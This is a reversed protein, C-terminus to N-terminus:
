QRRYVIESGRGGPGNGFHVTLMAVAAVCSFVTIPTAHELFNEFCTSVLMAVAYATCALVVTQGAVPPGARLYGVTTRFFSGFMAAIAAFGIVGQTMLLWLMSNHINHGEALLSGGTSTGTYFELYTGLGSGLLPREGWKALAARYSDFRWSVNIDEAARSVNAKMMLEQGVTSRGETVQVEWMLFVAVAVFAAGLAAIGVLATKKRGPFMWFLFAMGGIVGLWGARYNALVIAVLGLAAVAAWALRRARPNFVLQALAFYVSLSIFIVEYQSLVHAADGARRYYFQGTAAQVFAKAILCLSGVLLVRWLARLGREDDVLLQAVFFNMFYFYARRFDGLVEDFPNRSLLLGNAVGWMGLLFFAAVFRNFRIARLNWHGLSARWLIVMANFAFVVDQIYLKMFGLPLSVTEFLEHFVMAGFVFAPFVRRPRLTAVAVVSLVGAALAALLAGNDALQYPLLNGAAVVVALAVVGAIAALAVARAEPGFSARIEQASHAEASL